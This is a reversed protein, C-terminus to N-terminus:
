DSGSVVTLGKSRLLIGDKSMEQGRIMDPRGGLETHLNRYGRLEKCGKGGM